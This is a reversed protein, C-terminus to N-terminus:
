FRASPEGVHVHAGTAIGVQAGRFALFPIGRAKLYQMLGRGEPTDPHVAIDAANRHDFGLRDHAPTQGLASVPLPRHFREAFFRDLTPMLALSWGGAGNYRLVTPGAQMGTAAPPLAAIERAAEVEAVVIDAERIAARTAEAAARTAELAREAEAVGAEAILGRAALDRRREAEAAAREVAAARLALLSQLSESYRRAADVQATRAADLEHAPGPPPSDRPAGAAGGALAVAVLAVATLVGAVLVLQVGRTIV